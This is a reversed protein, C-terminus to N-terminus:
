GQSLNRQLDYGCRPCHGYHRRVRGRLWVPLLLLIPWPAAYLLTDGLFGPWWPRYPLVGVPGPPRLQRFWAPASWAGHTASGRTLWCHSRLPWGAAHETWMTSGERHVLKPPAGLPPVRRSGAVRRVTTWAPFPHPQEVTAALWAAAEADWRGRVIRAASYGQEEWLFIHLVPQNSTHILTPNNQPGPGQAQWAFCWAVLHTTVAGLVLAILLVLTIRPPPILFHRGVRTM